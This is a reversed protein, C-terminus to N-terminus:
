KGHMELNGTYVLWRNKTVEYNGTGKRGAATNVQIVRPNSNSHLLQVFNLAMKLMIKETRSKQTHNIYVVTSTKDDSKLFAVDERSLLINSEVKKFIYFGSQHTRQKM